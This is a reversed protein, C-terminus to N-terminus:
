WKRVQKPNTKLLGKKKGEEETRNEKLKIVMKLTDPSSKRKQRNIMTKPNTTGMLNQYLLRIYTCPQKLNAPRNGM